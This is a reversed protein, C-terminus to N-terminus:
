FIIKLFFRSLKVESNTMKLYNWTTKVTEIKPPLGTSYIGQSNLPNIKHTLFYPQFNFFQIIQCNVRIYMDSISCPSPATTLCPDYSKLVNRPPPPPPRRVNPGFDGRLDYNKWEDPAKGLMGRGKIRGQLLYDMCFICSNMIVEMKYVFMQCVHEIM